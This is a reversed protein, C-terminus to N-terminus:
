KFNSAYSRLILKKAKPTILNFEINHKRAYEIAKQQSSFKLVVQKQTNKSAAWHMIPDIEFGESKEFELLWFDKSAKGSQMATKAPKYITGKM